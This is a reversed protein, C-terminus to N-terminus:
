ACMGGEGGDPRVSWRMTSLELVTNPAGDGAGVDDGSGVADAAGVRVKAGVITGAGAGDGAGVGVGVNSPTEAVQRSIGSRCPKSITSAGTRM